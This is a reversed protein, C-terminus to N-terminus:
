SERSEKQQVGVGFTVNSKMKSGQSSESKKEWIDKGLLNSFSEVHKHVQNPAYLKWLCHFGYMGTLRRNNGSSKRAM